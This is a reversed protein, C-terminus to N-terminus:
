AIKSQMSMRPMPLATLRLIRQGPRSPVLPSAPSAVAARLMRSALSAPRCLNPLRSTWRRASRAHVPSAGTMPTTPVLQPRTPPAAVAAPSPTTPSRPEQVYVEPAQFILLSITKCRANEGQPPPRATVKAMPSAAPDNRDSILNPLSFIPHSSPKSSSPVYWTWDECTFM